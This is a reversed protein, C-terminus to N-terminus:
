QAATFSAAVHAFVPEYRAFLPAAASCFLRYLDAGVPISSQRVREPGSVGTRAYNVVVFRRGGADYVKAEIDAVGMQRDRVTESELQGFLETIDASALPQNLRNQEVVIAAEGKRQAFSVLAAGGGPVVVWDKKPFELRIRRAPAEFLQVELKPARGYEAPPPAAPEQAAVGASGLVAAFAITRLANM